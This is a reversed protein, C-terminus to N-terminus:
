NKNIIANIDDEDIKINENIDEIGETLHNIFMYLFLSVFYTTVAIINTMTKLIILIIKLFKLQINQTAFM